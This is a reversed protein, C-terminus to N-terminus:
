RLEQGQASLGIMATVVAARPLLTAFFVLGTDALHAVPTLILEQGDALEVRLRRVQPDARALVRRLGRTGTGTYTNVLSGPYLAPGGFGGEDSQGDTYVAKIFTYYDDRTGGASVVWRNGSDQEGRALVALERKPMDVGTRQKVKEPSQGAV